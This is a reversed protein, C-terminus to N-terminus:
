EGGRGEEPRERQAWVMRILRQRERELDAIIGSTVAVCLAYGLIAGAVLAIGSM